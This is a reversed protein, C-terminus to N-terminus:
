VAFSQSMAEGPPPMAPCGMSSVTAINFLVNGYRSQDGLWDYRQHFGCTVTGFTGSVYFLETVKEGNYSFKAADNGDGLM